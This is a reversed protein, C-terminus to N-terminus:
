AIVESAAKLFGILTENYDCKGRSFDMKHGVEANLNLFDNSRSQRSPDSGRYVGKSDYGAMNAFQFLRFFSPLGLVLVNQPDLRQDPSKVVVKTIFNWGRLAGSGGYRGHEAFGVIETVYGLKELVDSAATAVTATRIFLEESSGWSTSIQVGLRVFQRKKGRKRSEWCDADGLLVREVNVEDGDDCIVRKRKTSPALAAFDSILPDLSNRAIEYRDVLIKPVMGGRVMEAAEAVTKIHRGLRTQIDGSCKRAPETCSAFEDVDQWTHYITKDSEDVEIVCGRAELDTIHETAYIPLAM